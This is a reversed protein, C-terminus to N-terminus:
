PTTFLPTPAQRNFESARATNQYVVKLVLNGFQRRVVKLIVQGDEYGAQLEKLNQALFAKMTEDTFDHTLRYSNELIMQLQHYSGETYQGMDITIKALRSAGTDDSGPTANERDYTLQVYRNKDSLEYLCEHSTSCTQLTKVEEPTMGFELDRFGELPQAAFTPFCFALMIWSLHFWYSGIPHVCSRQKM